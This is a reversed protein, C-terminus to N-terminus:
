KIRNATKLFFDLYSFNKGHEKKKLLIYQYTGIFLIIFITINIIETITNIINYNKKNIFYNIDNISSIIYNLTILIFSIFIHKITSRTFLLYLLYILFISFYDNYQSKNSIKDMNNRIEKQKNKDLDIINMYLDKITINIINAKYKSNKNNLAFYFYSILLILSVNRLIRKFIKNKNLFKGLESGISDSEAQSMLLIFLILIFLTNFINNFDIM